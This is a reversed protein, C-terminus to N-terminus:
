PALDVSCQSSAGEAGYHIERHCSPCIAGVHKPYDLGSDSVRTTHHPELYPTGDSRAFPAPKKCSECSGQARMLVNIRVAQSRRYLTRQAQSTEIQETTPFVSLARAQALDLVEENEQNVEDSLDDPLM